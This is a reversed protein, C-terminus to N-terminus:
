YNYLYTQLDTFISLATFIINHVIIIIISIYAKSFM